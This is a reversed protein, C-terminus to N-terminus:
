KPRMGTDDTAAEMGHVEAHTCAAGDHIEWRDFSRKEVVEILAVTAPYTDLDSVAEKFAQKAQTDDDFRSLCLNRIEDIAHARADEVTVGAGFIFGTAREFTVFGTVRSPADTAERARAHQAEIEDQISLGTVELAPHLRVRFAQRPVDKLYNPAYTGSVIRVRPSLVDDGDVEYNHTPTRYGTM